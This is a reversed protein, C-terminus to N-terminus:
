TTRLLRAIHKQEWLTAREYNRFEQERELFEPPHLNRRGAAYGSGGRTAPMVHHLMEHYVIYAVFYRPVWPRDLVPHIRILRELGSYSGLKITKRPQGRTRRARQGWTILANVQGHFYRANLDQFISYLDHVRGKPNLPVKRPRRRHLRGGNEEIYLGVKLSAERDNTTLYRVLADVIRAPADLFMHHVRIRVVGGQRHVSIISHRNDTISLVVQGSFAAQLKRELAQRAGEHVYLAPSPSPFVLALRESVREPIRIAASALPRAQLAAGSRGLRPAWWSAVTM